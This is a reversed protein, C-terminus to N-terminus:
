GSIATSAFARKLAADDMGLREKVYTVTHGQALLRRAKRERREEAELEQMPTARPCTHLDWNNTEHETPQTAVLALKLADEDIGLEERVAARTLGQELLRRALQGNRRVNGPARIMWNSDRIWHLIDGEAFKTFLTSFTGRLPDWARCTKIFGTDICSFIDEASVFPYKRCFKRGMMRLLGQHKRYMEAVFRQEDRSLPTSLYGTKPRRRRPSEEAAPVAVQAM